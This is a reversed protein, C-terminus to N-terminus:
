QALQDISFVCLDGRFDTECTAEGYYDQYWSLYICVTESLSPLLCDRSEKGSLVYRDSYVMPLGRVVSSLQCIFLVIDQMQRPHCRNVLLLVFHNSVRSVDHAFYNSKMM